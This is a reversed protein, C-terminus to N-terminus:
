NRLDAKIGQYNKREGAPRNQKGKMKAGSDM